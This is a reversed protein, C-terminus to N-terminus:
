SAVKEVLDKRRAEVLEFYSEHTISPDCRYAYIAGVDSGGMVGCTIDAAELHRALDYLKGILAKRTDAGITCAFEHARRPESM